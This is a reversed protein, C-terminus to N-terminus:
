IAGRKKAFLSSNQLIVGSLEQMDKILEAVESLVIDPYNSVLRKVIVRAEEETYADAQKDLEKYHYHNQRDHEAKALNKNLNQQVDATYNDEDYYEPENMAGEVWGSPQLFEPVEIEKQRKPFYNDNQAM